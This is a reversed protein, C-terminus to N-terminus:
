RAFISAGPSIKEHNSYIQYLYDHPQPSPFICLNVYTNTNLQPLVTIILPLYFVFVPHESWSNFEMLSLYPPNMITQPSMPFLLYIPCLSSWLTELMMSLNFEKIFFRATQFTVLSLLLRPSASLPTIKWTLALTFSIFLLLPKM